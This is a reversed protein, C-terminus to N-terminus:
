VVSKRDGVASAATCLDSEQLVASLQLFNKLSCQEVANPNGLLGAPWIFRTDKPLAADEVKYPSNMAAEEPGQNAVVDTTLQFPHSAAQSAGAGGLSEPTLSYEAIGFPTVESSLRIPRELAGAPTGGGGIHVRNLPEAGAPLSATVGIRLEIAEYPALVGSDTCTLTALSCPLRRHDNALAHAGPKWASISVAHVGAPLTDAIEIPSISGDADASGANEATLVLEGDPHGQSVLRAEATGVGASTALIKPVTQDPFTVKFHLSSPPEESVSVAGIGYAGEFATRLNAVTPEPLGDEAAFPETAFTGLEEVSHGLREAAALEFAAEGGQPTVIIEEVADSASGPDINAPRSAATLNWWVGSAASAPSATFLAGACWLAAVVWAAGVARLSLRAASENRAAARPKAKTRGSM